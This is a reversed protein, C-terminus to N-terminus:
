KVCRNCVPALPNNKIKLFEQPNCIRLSPRSSWGKPNAIRFIGNDPNIIRKNM